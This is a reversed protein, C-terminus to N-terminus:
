PMDGIGDINAYDCTVWAFFGAKRPNGRRPKKCNEECGEADEKTEWETGCEDCEWSDVIQVRGKYTTMDFEEFFRYVYHTLGGSKLERRHCRVVRRRVHAHEWVEWLYGHIVGVLKVM